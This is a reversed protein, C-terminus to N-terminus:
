SFTFCTLVKRIPQLLDFLWWHLTYAYCLETQNEMLHFNFKCQYSLLYKGDPSFGVYVHGDTTVGNRLSKLSIQFNEPCKEFYKIPRACGTRKLGGFIQRQQLKQPLSKPM